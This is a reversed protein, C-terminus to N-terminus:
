KWLSLSLGEQVISGRNKLAGNYENNEKGYTNTGTGVIPMEVGNNLKIYEMNKSVGETYHQKMKKGLVDYWIISNEFLLLSWTHQYEM